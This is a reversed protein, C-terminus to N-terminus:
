DLSDCASEVFDTLPEIGVCEWDRERLRRMSGPLPGCGVVAANKRGEPVHVARGICSLVDDLIAEVAGSRGVAKAALEHAAIDPHGDALPRTVYLAHAENRKIGM